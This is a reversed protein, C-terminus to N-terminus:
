DSPRGVDEDAAPTAPAPPQHSGFEPHTEEMWAYVVGGSLFMLVATLWFAAELGALEMTLGIGLAGVAYGADRWMRYVGM